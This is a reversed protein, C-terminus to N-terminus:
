TLVRATYAVIILAGLILVIWGLVGLGGRHRVTATLGVPRLASENAEAGHADASYTTKQVSDAGGLYPESNRGPTRNVASSPNTDDSREM